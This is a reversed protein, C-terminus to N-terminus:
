SINRIVGLLDEIKDKFSLDNKFLKYIQIQCSKRTKKLGEDDSTDFYVKAGLDKWLYYRIKEFKVEDYWPLRKEAVLVNETHAGSWFKWGEMTIEHNCGKNTHVITTRPKRAM